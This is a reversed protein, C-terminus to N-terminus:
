PKTINVHPKAGVFISFTRGDMKSDKRGVVKIGSINLDTLLTTAMPNLDPNASIEMGEATKGFPETMGMEPIEAGLGELADKVEGAYEEAEANQNLYSINIVLNWLPLNLFKGKARPNFSLLLKRLRDKQEPTVTRWSFQQELSLTRQTESALRRETALLQDKTSMLEVALAKAERRAGSANAEADSAAQSANKASRQADEANDEASNVTIEDFRQLIGDARSALEEFLGEGLVGLVILLWGCKAIRHIWKRLAHRTRVTGTEPDFFHWRIPLPIDEAEELIVGILVLVTCFLLAHFYGDRLSQDSKRIADDLVRTSVSSLSVLMNVANRQVISIKPITATNIGSAATM